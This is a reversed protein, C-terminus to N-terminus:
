ETKGLAKYFASEAKDIDYGASPAPVSETIEPAKHASAWLSKNAETLEAIKAEYSAQMADMKSALEEMKLDLATKPQEPTTQDDAM